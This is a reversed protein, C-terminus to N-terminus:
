IKCDGLTSTGIVCESGTQTKSGSGGGGCAALWLTLGVLLIILKQTRLHQM